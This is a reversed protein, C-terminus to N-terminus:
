LPITSFILHKFSSFDLNVVSKSLIQCMKSPKSIVPNKAECYKSLFKKKAEFYRSLFLLSTNFRTIEYGLFEQVLTLITM